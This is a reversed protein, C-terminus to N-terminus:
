VEWHQPPSWLRKQHRELLTNGRNSFCCMEGFSCLDIFSGCSFNHALLRCHKIERSQLSRLAVGHFIDLNKIINCDFPCCIKLFHAFSDPIPLVIECNSTNCWNWVHTSLADYIITYSFFSEFVFCLFEIYISTYFRLIEISESFM